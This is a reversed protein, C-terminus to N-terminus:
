RVKDRQQQYLNRQGRQIKATIWNYRQVDTEGILLVMVMLVLFLIFTCGFIALFEV